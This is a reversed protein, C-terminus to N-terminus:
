PLREYTLTVRDIFDGRRRRQVAEYQFLGLSTHEDFAARWWEPRHLSIHMDQGIYPGEMFLSGTPYCAINSYCVLRTREDLQQLTEPILHPEVHELVDTSIVLDFQKDPLKDYAPMGPDYNTWKRVRGPLHQEIYSGLEGKGAGFDLVSEIYPREDLMRIVGAGAYKPGTTGWKSRYHEKRM